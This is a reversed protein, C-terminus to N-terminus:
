SPISDYGIMRAVEEALDAPTLLDSRWSPPDVEVPLM